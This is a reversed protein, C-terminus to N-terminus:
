SAHDQCDHSKPLFSGLSGAGPFKFANELYGSVGECASKFDSISDKQTAGATLVAVIDLLYERNMENM